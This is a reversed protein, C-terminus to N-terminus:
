KWLLFNSLGWPHYTTWSQVFPPPMLARYLRTPPHFNGLTEKSLQTMSPRSSSIEIENGIGNETRNQSFDIPRLISLPLDVLLFKELPFRTGIDLIQCRVDSVQCRVSSVPCQVNLVQCNSYSDRLFSPNPLEAAVAPWADGYHWNLKASRWRSHMASGWWTRWGWVWVSERILRITTKATSWDGCRPRCRSSTLLLYSPGM